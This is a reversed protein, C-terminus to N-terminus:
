LAEGPVLAALTCDLRMQATTLAEAPDDTDMLACWFAADAQVMDLMVVECILQGFATLVDHDSADALAPALRRIIDVLGRESLHTLRGEISWRAERVLQKRCAPFFEAEAFSEAM